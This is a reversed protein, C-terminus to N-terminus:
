KPHAKVWQGNQQQYVETGQGIKDSIEEYTGRIYIKSNEAFFGVRSGANGNVTIRVGEALSGVHSGANGNITLTKGQLRLGLWDLTKGAKNLETIDIVFETDKSSHMMATLYNATDLRFGPLDKYRVLTRSFELVQEKTPKYRDTIETPIKNIV